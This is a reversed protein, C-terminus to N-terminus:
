LVKSKHANIMLVKVVRKRPMKAFIMLYRDLDLTQFKLVMTMALGSIPIAKFEPHISTNTEDFNGGDEEKGCKELVMVRKVLLSHLALRGTYMMILMMGLTM